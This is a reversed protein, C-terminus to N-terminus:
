SDQKGDHQSEKEMLALSIRHGNAADGILRDGELGHTRVSVIQRRQLEHGPFAVPVRRCSTGVVYGPRCADVGEVLVDLSRGVLQRVFDHRLEREIATIRTKREAIVRPAVQDPMSAAPTGRRASFPFIHMQAFGVERAVRCTAVFDAESEGPFGVIIDTTLAPQDFAHRIQRCRELFSRVRYRRNMRTLVADSGSQLCVHFHPCIRPNGAVARLLDDRVEAAELSSLRIRFQGSLATLRDILHWLRIWESKRKGKSLDIGYHGLHIGTLVIEQCGNDVLHRVERVIEEPPRSRMTPRVSPIICFTCNLLCGDQVKVFARQHGDFRTIGRAAVTVGFETLEEVIREKSTVVKAVGPLREVAQPDRTAFCGMVVISTEPNDRHLQRVLQRAKADAEATVTCTNVICLQASEGAAAERFGNAELTEKVHQTEYQNVKCGLTVLRCTRPHMTM